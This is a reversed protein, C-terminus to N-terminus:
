TFTQSTKCGLGLARVLHRHSLIALGDGAAGEFDGDIIVLNVARGLHLDTTVADLRGLSLLPVM